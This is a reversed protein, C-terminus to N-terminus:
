FRVVAGGVVVHIDETPLAKATGGAAGSCTTGAGTCTVDASFNRYGLYLTSAAADVNQTIGLGWITLETDTVGNVATFNQQANAATNFPAAFATAAAFNRGAAEAGFDNSKGYEGYLATNGIGFWNKAVGGQILWHSWDKKTVGGASGWYGSVVQAPDGYDGAMYHGQVFLGTPVHM